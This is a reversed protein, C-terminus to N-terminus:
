DLEAAWRESVEALAQPPKRLLAIATRRIRDRAEDTTVYEVPSKGDVRALFLGPLLTAVRHELEAPPEWAVRALYAARLAAFSARLATRAHPVPLQKLLLHNLCFAVDFAPDGYWATEADLFVPGDPGILINKPSVDGHVLALHTAGTRAALAELQPAVEPRARATALLYADIRLAHFIADTPFQAAVAPDRATAAHIAGLADGVAAATVPDVHGALLAAKWLPYRDPPLFAMAFAGRAEDLAVLPPAAGPRIRSATEFWRWEYVNREVPATWDAAVRLRALARKVCVTRSGADLRWIESSIGGTLPTWRAAEGDRVLGAERAFDELDRGPKMPEIAPIVPPNAPWSM